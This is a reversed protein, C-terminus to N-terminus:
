KYFFTYKYEKLVDIVKISQIVDSFQNQLEQLMKLFDTEKEYEFEPELDWDGIVKLNHVLHPNSHLKTLLSVVRREEPNKLYIITKYFNIGLLEYNLVLRFSKIVGSNLLKKIRNTTIKLTINLEKAIETIPKRANKSLIRLIKLDIDDFDTLKLPKTDIFDAKSNVFYRRPFSWVSSTISLSKNFLFPSALSIVKDKVQDLEKNNKVTCSLLCDWDGRCKAIWIVQSILKIKEYLQEEDSLTIGNFKLCIKFHILGLKEYDVATHYQTIINEELKKVRYLAVEPSVGVKKALQTYNIRANKDLEYLIKKDKIDLKM